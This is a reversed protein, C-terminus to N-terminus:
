FSVLLNDTSPRRPIAERDTLLDFSRRERYSSDGHGNDSVSGVWNERQEREKGFGRVLMDDSKRGAPLSMGLLSKKKQITPRSSSEGGLNLLSTLSGRRPPKRPRATEEDHDKLPM